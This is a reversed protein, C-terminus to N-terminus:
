ESQETPYTPVSVLPPYDNGDMPATGGDGQDPPNQFAELQQMAANMQASYLRREMVIGSAAQAKDAWGQIGLWAIIVGAASLLQEPDVETDTLTAWIGAVFTAVVVWFKRSRLRSVVEM